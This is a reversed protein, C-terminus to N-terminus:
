SHSFIVCALHRTGLRGWLKFVIRIWRWSLEEHSASGFTVGHDSDGYWVRSVKPFLVGRGVPRRGVSGLYDLWEGAQLSSGAIAVLLAAPSRPGSATVNAPCTAAGTQAQWFM